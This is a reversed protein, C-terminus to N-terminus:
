AQDLQFGLFFLILLLEGAEHLFVFADPLFIAGEIDGGRSRLVVFDLQLVEIPLEALEGDFLISKRLLQSHDLDLPLVQIALAFLKLLM